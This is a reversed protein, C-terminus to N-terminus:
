KDDCCTQELVSDFSCGRGFEEGIVDRPLLMHESQITSTDEDENPRGESNDFIDLPVIAIEEIMFDENVNKVSDQHQTNHNYEIEDMGTLDLSEQTSALGDM